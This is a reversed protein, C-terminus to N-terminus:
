TREWWFIVGGPKDCRGIHGCAFIPSCGFLVENFKINPLKVLIQGSSGPKKLISYCCGARWLFVRAVDPRSTLGRTNGVLLTTPRYPQRFNMPWSFLLISLDRPEISRLHKLLLSPRYSLKRTPLVAKRGENIHVSSSTSSSWKVTHM